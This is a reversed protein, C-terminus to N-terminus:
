YVRPPSGSPRSAPVRVLQGFQLTLAGDEPVTAMRAVNRLETARTGELHERVIPTTSVSRAAQMVWDSGEGLGALDSVDSGAESPASRSRGNGNIRPLANWVAYEGSTGRAISSLVDAGWRAAARMMANAERPSDGNVPVPEGDVAHRHQRLLQVTREHTHQARREMHALTTSIIAICGVFITRSPAPMDVVGVAFAAVLVPIM